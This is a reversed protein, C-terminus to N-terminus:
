LIQSPADRRALWAIKAGGRRVEGFGFGRSRSDFLLALLFVDFL